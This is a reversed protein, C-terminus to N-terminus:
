LPARDTQLMFQGFPESPFNRGEEGVTSFDNKQVKLPSFFFFLLFGFRAVFTSKKGSHSRAKPNLFCRWRTPHNQFLPRSSGLLDRGPIGFLLPQFLKSGMGQGQVRPISFNCPPPKPIDLGSPLYVLGPGERCGGGACVRGVGWNLRTGPTLGGPLTTGM